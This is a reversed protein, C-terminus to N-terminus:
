LKVALQGGVFPTGLGFDCVLGVPSVRLGAPVELSVQYVGVMGPALGAFYIRSDNPGGDWFQCRLPGTVLALPTAPSPEGTAVPVSVAGLGTLYVAIVEGSLAPSDDSILGSFDQHAALVTYDGTFGAPAVSQVTLTGPPSELPSSGSIYEVQAAEQVPVEWPVQFWVQEPSSALIPADLGGTRIQAPWLNHGTFQYMSGPAVPSISNTIWPSRPILETVAGTAVDIRLLRGGGTAAFAVRGDGSLTVEEIGDAEQTLQRLPAALWVQSDSSNVFAIASADDSIAAWLTKNTTLTTETGQSRDYLALGTATQYVVRSGDASLLVQPESLYDSPAPAAGSLTQEGDSRWLRLQGGTAVAVTGDNAVQRRPRQAFGYPVTVAKGTTLDVLEAGTMLNAFTNRAYFLAWRGNPSMSVYGSDSFLQKGGRDVITGQNTQVTLCGSGGYCGRWASIAVIAGDSSPQADMIEYFNSSTWGIPEGADRSLFEVLRTDFRFIKHFFPSSSGRLRLPTSFYLTAGDATTGLSAFQGRAAGGLALLILLLRIM